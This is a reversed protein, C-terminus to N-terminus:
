LLGIQEQVDPLQLAPQYNPALKAVLADLSAALSPAAINDSSHVFVSPELGQGHWQVLKRAWQELWVQNRELDPHGIFRVVPHSGTAVPHCPVRPKKQQADQLSENYASTSFVPRSDMVVRNVNREAMNSLLDTEVDGKDFFNLHRVEISLPSVLRWQDCLVLIKGLSREDCASPLQLMTPGLKDTLGALSDMFEQWEQEIQPWPRDFLRHSITQPVKFSFRFREPVSDYWRQLQAADVKTYFTSGVEVCSFYQAYYALREASPVQNPYLWGVWAPHQWQAMGYHISM